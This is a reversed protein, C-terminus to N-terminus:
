IDIGRRRLEAKGTPTLVPAYLDEEYQIAEIHYFYPRNLAVRMERLADDLPTGVRLLVRYPQILGFDVRLRKFTAHILQLAAQNNGPQDPRLRKHEYADRDLSGLEHTIRKLKLDDPLIYIASPHPAPRRRREIWDRPGHRRLLPPDPIRHDEQEM